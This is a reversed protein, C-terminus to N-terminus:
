APSPTAGGNVFRFVVAQWTPSKAAPHTTRPYVGLRRPLLRYGSCAAVAVPWWPQARWRPAVLTVTAKDRVIKAVTPGVLNFPPNAWANENAWSRNMADVGSGGPSPLKCYFRGCKASEASAFLDVTLPGFVDDLSRFAARTLCWDTSDATRSLRDAWMNLASPLYEARLTVGLHTCLKHLRCLEAMVAESGSSMANMAGMVVQSDVKLRVVTDPQLLFDAFSLLGLRVAGLELLNIHLAKRDTAHFGRAPLLGDWTAGWGSNSADTEMTVDPPRPWLARGAKAHRTLEAWYQLDQVAQRGLRVRHCGVDLYARLATYLSRLRFRADPVALHTSVATGCFSRLASYRVWCRHSNAHGILSGAMEMVKKARGPQLLFLQRETDVIFGLMPLATTGELEGKTPHLTLGLDSLLTRVRVAARTVDATTAPGNAQTPPAGGFDDVYVVIRFGEARLQQVVPRCVKTWLFPAVKLGFPMTNCQFVRGLCQFCFLPKDAERLPVHHYADMVDWGMLQGGRELQQALDLLGEYKFPREEMFESRNQHRCDIVFRQKGASWTVLGNVIVHPRERDKGFLETWYGKEVCRRM